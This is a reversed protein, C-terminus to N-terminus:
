AAKPHPQRAAKGVGRTSAEDGSDLHFRCVLGQLESALRSLEASAKATDQASDSSMRIARAIEDLNRNVENTAASQEHSATAIQNVMGNVKDSAVLIEQISEGARTASAATANVRAIEAHISEVATKADNQVSTIMEEIEHTAKGTREALRRVEGAVVAFGRGQEGACAAEIAANLALFTM